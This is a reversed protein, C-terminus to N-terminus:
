LVEKLEVKQFEKIVSDKSVNLIEVGLRKADLAIQSFVPLYRNFSRQQAPKRYGAIGAQFHTDGNKNACMDFGLLIIRKVGFLTALNIAGAGANHNWRIVKPDESLGLQMDRALKKIRRHNALAEANQQPLNGTDTIKLNHFNHLQLMNNRYFPLDGFYLVSVWDGLKYAINTGIIHKKHIEELYPSYASIPKKLNMVDKIVKKPVGFQIPMSYGGGIIWCEGDQWMNPVFWNGM